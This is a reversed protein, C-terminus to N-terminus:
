EDQTVFVPNIGIWLALVPPLSRADGRYVVDDGIHVYMNEGGKRAGM